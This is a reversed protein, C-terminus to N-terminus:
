RPILRDSGLGLQPPRTSPRLLARLAARSSINGRAWWALEGLVTLL